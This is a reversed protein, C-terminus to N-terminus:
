KNSLFGFSWIAEAPIRENKVKEEESSGSPLITSESQANVIRELREESVGFAAALAPGKMSQLVSNSGVLFQPRNRRASTTFGFFEFPGSHSAIQCFPFYRPIWFVDGESVKANMALTGNPFVIQIRGSGRLVIGYETATPNLHPAMMSGATLNVLYLGVGSQRLPSYVSQDVVVSSGYDNEFDPKRDFLNYSDPKSSRGEDKGSVQNGFVSGLLKKFSWMIPEEDQETAEEHVQVMRKLCQVRENHKMELFQTWVRSPHSDSHSNSLSIIPGSKQSTMIQSVQSKSVNLATSLTSREFGALISTPNSGGGIFFSQFTGWGISDSKEISCIVHLQQGDATNVLYFTSGAPIRYVDGCNLRKEILEDRYISGVRAEGRRIFLILDSDLYQPIFLSNPEMTVFGVHINPWDSIWGHTSRVVKMEGAETRVVRKMDRLLFMRERGRREGGEGGEHHNYGKVMAVACCLALVLLLLASAIRGM